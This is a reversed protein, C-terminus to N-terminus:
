NRHSPSLSAQLSSVTGSVMNPKDKLASTIHHAAMCRWALKGQISLISGLAGLASPWTSWCQTM